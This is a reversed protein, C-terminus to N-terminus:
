LIGQLTELAEAKTAGFDKYNATMITKRSSVLKFSIIDSSDAIAILSGKPMVWLFDDGQLKVANDTTTITM